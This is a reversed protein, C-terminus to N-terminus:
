CREVRERQYMYSNYIILNKLTFADSKLWQIFWNPCPHGNPSSPLSNNSIHVNRTVVKKPDRQTEYQTVLKIHTDLYAKERESKEM